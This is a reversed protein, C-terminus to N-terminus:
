RRGPTSATPRLKWQARDTTAPAQPPDAVPAESAALPTDLEQQIWQAVHGITRISPDREKSLLDLDFEDALATVIEVRKVSDIGLDNELDAEALLLQKPYRTTVAICEVVRDIVSIM